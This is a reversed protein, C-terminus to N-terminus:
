EQRPAPIEPVVVLDNRVTTVGPQLSLIAEALEKESESAVTGRLIVTQGVIELNPDTVRSNLIRSVRGSSLQANLASTAPQSYEFGVRLSVQVQPMNSGAAGRNANANRNQQNLLNRNLNNMLSQQQQGAQGGLFTGAGNQTGRGVFGAGQQGLMFQSQGQAGLMFGSNGAGGAAQGGIGFGSGGFGSAGFSNSGGFGSGGFGVGSGFTNGGTGFAGGATGTGGFGSGGVGGAGTRGFSQALAPTCVICAVGFALGAVLASRVM